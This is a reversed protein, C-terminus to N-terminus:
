QPGEAALLARTMEEPTVDRVHTAVSVMHGSPGVVVGMRDGWFTDAVPVALRAGAGVAREVAADADAVDLYLFMTTAGLTSPSRTGHEEMAESFMLRSDGLTVEAHMLRGDPMAMRGNDEGGLGALYFADLAKAADSLNLSATVARHGPTIHSELPEGQEWIAAIAAAAAERDPSFAVKAGAAIQEPTLQVRATGVGWRHGLADVVMGYRQGWFQDTAPMILTAGAELARAITADADPVALNLSGVTGGAAGPSKTAGSPDGPRLMIRAGDLVIEAHVARDEAGAVRLAVEAGFAAAYHAIAEDVDDVILGPTVAGYGEPVGAPRADAPADAAEETEETGDDEAAVEEAAEAAGEGAEGASAAEEGGEGAAEARPPAGEAAAENETPQEEAAPAPPPADKGCGWAGSGLAFAVFAITFMRTKHEM